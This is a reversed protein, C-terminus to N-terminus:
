IGTITLHGCQSFAYNARAVAESAGFLDLLPVQMIEITLFPITSIGADALGLVRHRGDVVYAKENRYAIIPLELWNSSPINKTRLLRSAVPQFAFSDSTLFNVLKGTDLIVIVPINPGGTDFAPDINKFNLSDPLRCDIM